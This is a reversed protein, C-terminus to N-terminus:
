HQIELFYAKLVQDNITNPTFIELLEPTKNNSNLFSNLTQELNEKTHISNYTFGYMECLNKATLAHKTEFFTSFNEQEKNKAIIRFIGGGSNNILIIKFNKPIYNNWLANSDYFFSLDGTLLVTPLKNKLAAGIATSVSGDIGSTGRNCFVQVEKPLKFLQTYRIAASNAVQLQIGQPLLKCIKSYVFFDSYAAQEKFIKQKKKKLSFQTTWYSQYNSKIDESNSLIQNFFSNVDQKIHKNLVFYTDFAMLPDIHWHNKPPHNRLFQKVKKSVIMGGFTILLEPQLDKMENTTLSDLLTDISYIFNPHHLNSTTETLALVSPDEALKKINKNTISNPPLVGVLIMKKSTNEWLNKLSDELKLVEKTVKPEIVKPFVLPKTVTDYLPESFPINIHVPGQQLFSIELATNIQNENEEQFDIGEKCNVEFLIHNKFVYEQRITQGDGIDILHKPRDASLIVLPIRSYFAETISPYYNVLASGSTCVLAVPKKTQQAMGLAFFGACREDVISYCTYEADNTFGITLPANRSGPSIVIQSIGKRKCIQTLTQSLIKSSFIM